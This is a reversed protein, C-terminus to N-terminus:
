ADEAKIGAAAIVESFRADAAALSEQFADPTTATIVFGLDTLKQAVARTQLAARWAQYWADVVADPTGAPVLVGQTSPVDFGPAVAENPSPVEPM